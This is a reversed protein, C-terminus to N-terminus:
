FSYDDDKYSKAQTPKVAAITSGYQKADAPLKEIDKLTGWKIAFEIAFLHKCKLGRRSKDLCSCWEFVDPKFKVSYYVNDSNESEVYCVDSNLIRFVIRSLALVRGKGERRDKKELIKEIEESRNSVVNKQKQYNDTAKKHVISLQQM